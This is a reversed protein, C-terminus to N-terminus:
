IQCQSGEQCTESSGIPRIISTLVHIMFVIVCHISLMHVLYVSLMLLMLHVYAISEGVGDLQTKFDPQSFQKGKPQTFDGKEVGTRLAKNFQNDFVAPTAASTKNNALIYKKLAQRSYLPSTLVLVIATSTRM